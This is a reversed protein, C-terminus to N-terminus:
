SGGQAQQCARHYDRLPRNIIPTMAPATQAAARREASVSGYLTTRQRPTRGAAVILAEMEAVPLEQGHTAGAARSISENMLTGGLDNAGAQLLQAAGAPGLKPWSVQINNVLPHLVLRAVAHLLMVERYTPGPRARGRRYLPAEMPVFPLPVLETLGGSRAQLDRLTLLHTAWSDISELHGFMITATTPLGLEHASEVVHLWQATDIKDPCLRDRVRDDLIEAATGPLSALGAAALRGLFETVSIGLTAAGQTIELPSFAHVHIDPAAAKVAKVIDIYTQGTFDPHIGGQMCVETAGRQWAEASRRGIEELDLLYPAGRLEASAKGKSFACFTCKFYCVNTYNINRNVVYSVTDGCADRRLQDAAAAVETVEDGRAQLLRLVDAHAMRNGAMARALVGALAGAPPRQVPAPDSWPVDGAARSTGATWDDERGFGESDALALVPRILGADIWRERELVFTPYVTLRETLQKGCARTSRALTDVHPWPSEPNVHDPTVPSVGGWDNIGAAILQDLRGDNLNPPVQISMDSGFVIRAVAVTWLLEAFDPPPAQHMKTGPKPVFNQVIIEQLHGFEDHLAKLALLSNIRERRTEGIGILIGSTLPVRARGAARLCELRVAPDKDPSGFHPGGPQCLRPSASELMLGMSPAVPRLAAFETESLVGPNLHPLLGTEALVLEAMAKLYALTSEYGLRELADRAARYRREPKDGLTFLAEKCGQARGEHAIALVDDPDLYAKELHRPVQAFTCYHCVDRCLQTLPIFVKRSYSVVSGHGVDRLAAAQEMLEALPRRVLARVHPALPSSQPVASM